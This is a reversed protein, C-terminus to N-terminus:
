LEIERTMAQLEEKSHVGAKAYVRQIHNRATNYSISLEDSISRASDGRVLLMFIDRERATLQAQSSVIECKARWGSRGKRDDGMPPVRESFDADKDVDPMAYDMIREIDSGRLLFLAAVLMAISAIVIMTTVANLSLDFVSVAEGVGWSIINGLSFAGYGMGFVRLTSAGTRFAICSLLVWVCLNIVANVSGVIGLTIGSAPGILSLTICIVSSVLLARYVILGFNHRRSLGAVALIAIAMLVINLIGTLRRFDVLYAEGTFVPFCSRCVGSPIVFFLMSVALRWFWAPLRWECVSFVALKDQEETLDVLLLFAAISPLLAFAWPRVLVFISLVTYSVMNGVIQVAAAVILCDKADLEAFQLIMRCPIIGMGIGSFIAGLLYWYGEALSFLAFTLVTGVSALVGSAVVFRDNYVLRYFREHWVAVAFFVAMQAANVVIYIHNAAGSSLQVGFFSIECGYMVCFWAVWCAGGMFRVNPLARNLAVLYGKRMM